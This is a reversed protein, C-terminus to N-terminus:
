LLLGWVQPSLLLLHFEGVAPKMLLMGKFVRTGNKAETHISMQWALAIYKLNESPHGREEM